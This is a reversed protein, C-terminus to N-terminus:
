YKVPAQLDAFCEHLINYDKKKKKKIADIFIDKWQGPCLGLFDIRREAIVAVCKLTRFNRVINLYNLIVDPNRHM